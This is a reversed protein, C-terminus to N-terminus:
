LKMWGKKECLATKHEMVRKYENLIIEYDEKRSEETEYFLTICSGTLHIDMCLSGSLMESIKIGVILTVDFIIVNKNKLKVM